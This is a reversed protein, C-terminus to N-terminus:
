VVTCVQHLSKAWEPAQAAHIGSVKVGTMVAVNSLMTKIRTYRTPPEESEAVCANAHLSILCLIWQPQDLLPPSAGANRYSEQPHAATVQSKQYQVSTSM